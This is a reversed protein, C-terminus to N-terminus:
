MQQNRIGRLCNNARKFTHTAKNNQKHHWKQGNTTWRDYNTIRRFFLNQWAFLLSLMLMCNFLYWSTWKILLQKKFLHIYRTLSKKSPSYFKQLIYRYLYLTFLFHEVKQFSIYYKVSENKSVVNLTLPFVVSFVSIISLKWKIRYSKSWHFWSFKIIKLIFSLFCFAVLFKSYQYKWVTKDQIVSVM